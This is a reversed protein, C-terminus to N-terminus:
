NFNFSGFKVKSRSYIIISEFFASPCSSSTNAATKYLLEVVLSVPKKKEGLCLVLTKGMVKVLIVCPDGATTHICGIVQLTDRHQYVKGTVARTSLVFCLLMSHFVACISRKLTHAPFSKKGSMIKFSLSSVLSLM